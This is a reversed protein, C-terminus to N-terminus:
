YRSFVVIFVRKSEVKLMRVNYLVLGVLVLLFAFVKLVKLYVSQKEDKKENKKM